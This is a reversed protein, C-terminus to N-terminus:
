SWLSSLWGREKSEAVNDHIWRHCAACVHLFNALSDEGGQKKLVIHHPHVARGTCGPQHHVECWGGSRAALDLRAQKEDATLTKRKRKIPSRKV